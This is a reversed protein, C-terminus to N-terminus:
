GGHDWPRRRTRDGVNSTHAPWYIEHLGLYVTGHPTIFDGSHHRKKTRPHTAIGALHDCVRAAPKGRTRWPSRQHLQKARIAMRAAVFVGQEGDVLAISDAPTKAQRTVTAIDGLRIVQGQSDIKLPVQRIRTLSDLEGSVEVLARFERNNIEGAAIKSDAGSLIHAIAAPTLQLQSMKNGDLHVLMEETPAGYLKVFDTGSM